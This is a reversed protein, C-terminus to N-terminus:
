ELISAESRQEQSILAVLDAKSLPDIDVRVGQATYFIEATVERGSFWENLVHYYVSLQKRYEGEAHRGLDTKFDIIEVTDPRIHVLDIIGSITVQEGDVTLPLYADVEVRLEGDLSDILSKLHREDDNSPEVDGELVYREAFEHTQTGFATGRGDDVDEFVDDRMLTHPSHGVPGDPTPVAIQLHAQTTEDIDDEQIDPELEEIDVPLEEIFTNPSEGAAFVLHSEARTMAVYLLRREEDYGRPLCKRLVDARWNDHIHPYGHDDAYLKRQRLGIPDAFTIANSNGGSPPFCHSNMNALVVIPHELGKAAHITQVTVSNMGASAHVEHTSGDEIGREIFRILDGRTLTTASHVSQITTLLVDAYAGVYDYQSFVRQVVGGVTELSALESKFAQMNTPYEESDLIHKVEDLTYGAEELVVAWGREADSELIRLWALLLKAPDSRFLEIGGEYAMPLGYAEAVSLLERGFDRTRTLVAIDGYEPLRLEGDEEVQYADNGVIEQIKTLVAEHEDEHRIAEIQSNEHSANSSLSVIRDRVATEDVDDTSAAPTVLSHESFDLIDQTSRYNEVLEIDIIPRTAWSVREHDENLEDVFRDLRSEFETINEVAAYQFSYISQKWDGVVCVNNTDALLLALKFQIESSDQFEDIMVYEFAVDDRLRHDDCLLVFAFLQLFSFNLYNRSLAFALYEHYVDHVFNKLAERQEDFVLQAVGDPVQKEGWGGRIEDEKPADPLYCKDDGYGGLKSRLKSQKNGDNRPQNLEDFIERFAEFDGDLHREGNRYWGDATPFVGKAALQNILGLLEVPEEIARFFDDYEPHDDSFRRIFERFQAKEVNEDELVRTSGTIRDDIGLLTPAEFGHEMLIDHCLSHFTQIPADSLERMGYDCHAVIRDKMETAANNTFTVLLVDEPEVDDQDVIEAYRRTVTFTKGTGAGADVVHIGQKSDILDQQQDNPATM